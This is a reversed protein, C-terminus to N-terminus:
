ETMDMFSLIFTGSWALTIKNLLSRRVKPRTTIVHKGDLEPIKSKITIDGAFMSAEQLFKLLESSKKKDVTKVKMAWMTRAPTRTFGDITIADLQPPTTATDTYGRVRVRICRTNGLNLKLTGEPSMFVKGVSHWNYAGDFGVNNDIQYDLELWVSTDQVTGLNTASATISKFYKSLRAAGDDFTSFVIYFSHAYNHTSDNTPNAADKAFELYVVDYDTDILLRSHGGDVHEWWLDRIRHGCPARYIEHWTRGNYIHVSSYGNAGADIAFFRWSNVALIASFYGSRSATPGRGRWGQGIDTATGAYDEMVTNLYSFYLFGNWSCVAAGNRASPTKSMSSEQLSYANNYIIGMEDQKLIYIRNSHGIMNTIPYYGNGCPIATGYVIPAAPYTGTAITSSGSSNNAKVIQGLYQLLYTAKNTGDDAWTSSLDWKRINTSEGQPFYLVNGCLCPRGTVIGLGTTGGAASFVGNAFSYFSSTGSGPRTTCYVTSGVSQFVHNNSVNAATVRYYIKWDADNWNIGDLSHKSGPTARDVGIEWHSDGYDSQGGFLSIHYNTGIILAQPSSTNSFAEYVDIYDTIDSITKTVTKLIAGPSGSSDSHLNMTLTGPAGVRRIFAYIHVANYSASATFAISQYKNADLLPKWTMNGPLYRNENRLGTAIKWQPAPVIMGPSLTWAIGDYYASMDDEASKNGRGGTWDRWEVLNLLPDLGYKKKGSSFRANFTSEEASDESLSEVGDALYLEYQQGNCELTIDADDAM